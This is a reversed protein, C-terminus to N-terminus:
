GVHEGVMRGRPVKVAGAKIGQRMAGLVGELLKLLLNVHVLVRLESALIASVALVRVISSAIRAPPGHVSRACRAWNSPPDASSAILAVLQPGFAIALAGTGM